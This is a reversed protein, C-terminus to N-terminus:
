YEIVSRITRGDHLLDFAKNIRELPLVASIM